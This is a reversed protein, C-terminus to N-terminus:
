GTPVVMKSEDFAAVIVNLLREFFNDGSDGNSSTAFAPASLAVFISLALAYVRIKNRMFGGTGAFGPTTSPARV